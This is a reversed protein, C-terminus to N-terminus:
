PRRRRTWARNRWRGPSMGTAREFHRVLESPWWGVRSAVEKVSLDRARLLVKAEKLRVAEVHQPFTRGTERTLLHSVRSESRGLSKAITALRIGPECAHSKILQLARRTLDSLPQRTAVGGQRRGTRRTGSSAESSSSRDTPRDTRTRRLTWREDGAGRCLSAATRPVQGARAGNSNVSVGLRFATDTGRRPHRASPRLSRSRM